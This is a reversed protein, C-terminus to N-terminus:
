SQKTHNGLGAKVLWLYSLQQLSRFLSLVVPPLGSDAGCGGVFFYCNITASLGHCLYFTTNYPFKTPRTYEGIDNDTSLKPLFLWGAWM